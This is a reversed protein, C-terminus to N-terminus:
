LLRLSRKATGCYSRPLSDQRRACEVRAARHKTDSAPDFLRSPRGCHLALRLCQAFALRRKGRLVRSRRVAVRLRASATHLQDSSSTGAAVVVALTSSRACPQTALA